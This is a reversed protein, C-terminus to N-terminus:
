YLEIQKAQNYYYDAKEEDGLAKYIDGLRKYSFFFNHNLEISRMLHSIAKKYNGENLYINAINYHVEAHSDNVRIAKLYYKKAQSFEEKKTYAMALNNLVRSSGTEYSLIYNYFTIPNKWKSNTELTIAMLIIVVLCTGAILYFRYKSNFFYRYILTSIVIFFGLSSAYLWHEMIFANLPIIGSIPLMTVLMWLIGFTILKDPKKIAKYLILAIVSLIILSFLVPLNFPSVFVPFSREMHLGFPMILFSFYEPITAIFTLIRVFISETYINASKYFNLSGEFNLLTLRFIAFTILIVFYPLSYSVIKKIKKSFFVSETLIILLPFVLYSEKSILVFVFCLISIIFFIINNKKRYITYCVLSLLSFFFALPDATGSIYTVAETHIPHVVWFVSSLFSIVKNKSLKYLILFILLANALHLSINLLHYPWPELNFKKYILSYATLQIPRYFKDMRGAGAGIPNTLIKKIEFNHVYQNKELLFEDDWLLENNYVNIYATFGIIFITLILFINEYKFFYRKFINIYKTQKSTM